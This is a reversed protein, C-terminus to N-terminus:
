VTELFIRSSRVSVALGDIAADDIVYGGGGDSVFYGDATAAPDTDAYWTGTSFILIAPFVGVGEALARRQRQKKLYYWSKPPSYRLM